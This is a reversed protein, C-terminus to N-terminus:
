FFRDDGEDANAANVSVLDPMQKSVNSETKNSALDFEIWQAEMQLLAQEDIHCAMPTALMDLCSKVTMTGKLDNAVQVSYFESDECTVTWYGTQQHDLQQFANSDVDGCKMKHKTLVISFLRNRLGDDLALFRENSKNIQAEESETAGIGTEVGVEIAVEASPHLVDVEAYSLPAVGISLFLMSCLLCARQYVPFAYVIKM